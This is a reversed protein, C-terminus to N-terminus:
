EDLIHNVMSIIDLVDGVGNQNFDILYLDVETPDIVGLIINLGIIVDFISISNDYNLDGLLYNSLDILTGSGSITGSGSLMYIQLFGENNVTGNNVFESNVFVSVGSDITLTAGDNTVTSFLFTSLILIISLKKM